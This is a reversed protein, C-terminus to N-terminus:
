GRFRDEKKSGLDLRAKSDELRWLAMDSGNVKVVTSFANRVLSSVDVILGCCGSNGWRRWGCGRRLVGRVEFLLGLTSLRESSGDLRRSRTGLDEKMIWLM